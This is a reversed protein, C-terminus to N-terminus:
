FINSNSITELTNGSKSIVVTIKKKPNQLPINSFNDIFTFKKKPSNLFNYIAKAGLISGGMGILIVHNIKKLKNILKKSFGDKYNKDLSLIIENKEKIINKYINLFQKKKKSNNKKLNFNKFKINKGFM